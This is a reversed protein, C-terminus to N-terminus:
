KSAKKRALGTLAAVGTDLTVKGGNFTKCARELVEQIHADLIILFDKGVRRNHSKAYARVINKKIFM